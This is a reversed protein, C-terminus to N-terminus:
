PVFVRNIEVVKGNEVRATTNYQTFADNESTQMAEVIGDANVTVPEKEIDWADTFTAEPAILLATEGQDTYTSMDDLGRIFFGNSDEESALVFARADQEANVEIGYETQELSLVPVEEGEVVITDGVALTNVDVIDYWDQTYIHVANMYIGSAGSFVDGRDFSVPYTGDALNNVDVDSAMPAVTKAGATSANEFTVANSLWKAGTVESIAMAAFNLNGEGWEDDANFSGSVSNAAGPKLEVGDLVMVLNEQKFDPTDGFTLLLANFMAKETGLNTLSWSYSTVGSDDAGGEATVTLALNVPSNVDGEGMWTDAPITELWANVVADVDAPRVKGEEVIMGEAQAFSALAADLKKGYIGDFSGADYGVEKIIQQLARVDEGRRGREFVTGSEIIEHQEFGCGRCKRVREGAEARTMQKVTEWPGYDHELDARTQPWAIGDPNLNRDQQYKMLAKETGGGFIGDAGGANLYGQEVLLQQIYRVEEGKAGRRITGEPDFNEEGGVHGCVKCVKSRVGASHDTAELTVRYEYDHPLKDLEQKEETGCVKCTHVREGKETCTPEKTMKWAGFDHDELYEEKQQEGCNKCTRVREGKKTCTAEKSVKWKGWEHDLKKPSDEQRIGCLKCFRYRYGEHECTPEIEVTWKGFDHKCFSQPMEESLYKTLVWAIKQGGKKTDEILIGCWDGKKTVLEVMVADGGSLKKLVKSEKDPQKYAKVTEKTVYLPLPGDYEKTEVEDALASLVPVAIALVLALAMIMRVLKKM